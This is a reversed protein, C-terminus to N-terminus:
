AAIELETEAPSEILELIKQCSLRGFTDILEPREALVELIRGAMEGKLGVLGCSFRRAEDQGARICTLGHIDALRGAAATSSFAITPGGLIWSTSITSARLYNEGLLLLGLRYPKSLRSALDGPIRLREADDTLKKTGVGSFTADYPGILAAADVLGHGASVIRLDFEIGSCARRFAYVGRMLRRHQEGAYLSEAPVLADSPLPVKTNTCSSIVVIGGDPM